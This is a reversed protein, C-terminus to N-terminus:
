ENTKEENTEIHSTSVKKRVNRNITIEKKEPEKIHVEQASEGIKAELQAIRNDITTEEQEQIVTDSFFDFTNFEMQANQIEQKKHEIALAEQYSEIRSNDTTKDLKYEPISIETNVKEEIPNGGGLYWFIGCVSAFGIVTATQIYRIENKTQNDM